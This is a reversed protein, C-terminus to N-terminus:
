TLVGNGMTGERHHLLCDCAGKARDRVRVKGTNADVIVAAAARYYGVAAEMFEDASRPKAGESEWSGRQSLDSLQSTASYARKLEGSDTRTCKEYEYLGM